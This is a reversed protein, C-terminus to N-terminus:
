RIADYRKRREIFNIIDAVDDTRWNYNIIPVGVFNKLMTMVDKYLMKIRTHSYIDTINNEGRTMADSFETGSQLHIIIIENSLTGCMQALNMGRRNEGDYMRYVLDTIFSRDSIAVDDKYKIKADRWNDFEYNGAEIVIRDYGRNILTNLLSTKGSGDVGELIIIM